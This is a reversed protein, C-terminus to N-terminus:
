KAGECSLIRVQAFIYVLFIAMLLAYFVGFFNFFILLLAIVVGFKFKDWESALVQAKPQEFFKQIQSIENARFEISVSQKTKKSEAFFGMKGNTRAM